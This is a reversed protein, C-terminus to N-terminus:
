RRGRRPWARQHVLTAARLKEILSQLGSASIQERLGTACLCGLIRGGHNFAPVSIVMIGRLYEGVDVAYGSARANEVHKFSNSFSPANDWRLKAFGKKMQAPRLNGFAAFCLGPDFAVMGNEPLVRIIHLWTSPIMELQRALLVVGIPEGNGALFRLIKIARSVAPVDRPM